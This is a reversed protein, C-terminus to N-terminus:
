AEPPAQAPRELVCGVIDQEFLHEIRSTDYGLEQLIERSHEGLRPPPLDARLMSRSFRWPFGGHWKEGMDAHFQRKFWDRSTFQSHELIELADLVPAAPVGGAQLTEAAQERSRCTTWERIYAEIKDENNRRDQLTAGLGTDMGTVACLEDWDANDRCVIAVFRDKGECPFVGHPARDPHRNGWRVLDLGLSAALMEEGIYPIAAKLMSGKVWQGQGTLDRHVLALLTCAAMQIGTIADAQYFGMVLPESDPYGWLADWGAMAEITTGNAKYDRYPGIDGYGSWAISIIDTKIAKLSDYDLGFKRMVRPTYNDMVVDATAVLERVIAVGEPESLDIAIERKNRNTSNFNGSCNYPHANPNHLRSAPVNGQWNRWVDVRKHSEVKIVEAGLDALMASAFPGIWAQTFDIIRVGELPRTLPARSRARCPLPAGQWAGGPVEQAALPTPPTINGCRAPQGPFALSGLEPHILTDFYDIAKVHENSIVQKPELYLGIPPKGGSLMKNFLQEAPFDGTAEQLFASLAAEDYRKEPSDLHVPVEAEAIGLQALTDQFTRKGFLNASIFGDGIPWLRVGTAPGGQRYEAKGTYQSRLFPTITTLVDQAATEITEADGGCLRKHLAALTAGFASAGAIYSVLHGPARVPERDPKGNIVLYGAMAECLLDDGPVNAMPSDSAFALIRQVITFEGPEIGVSELEEPSLSTILVDAERALGRVDAVIRKNASLFLWTLSHGGQVPKLQRLERTYDACVVVGAGWRAFERGCFAVAPDDGVELVRINSCDM